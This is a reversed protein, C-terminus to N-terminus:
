TSDGLRAQWIPSNGALAVKPLRPFNPDFPPPDKITHYMAEALSSVEERLELHRQKGRDEPCLENLHAWDRCQQANILDSLGPVLKDLRTRNEATFDNFRVFFCVSRTPVNRQRILALELETRCWGSEITPYSLIFLYTRARAHAESLVEPWTGDRICTKDVFINPPDVAHNELREELLPVLLERVWPGISGKNPYSVFVNWRYEDDTM